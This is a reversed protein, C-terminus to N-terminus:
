QNVEEEIIEEEKVEEQVIKYAEKFETMTRDAKYNPNFKLVDSIVKNVDLLESSVAKRVELETANPNTQTFAITEAEIRKAEAFVQECHKFKHGYATFIGTIDDAIKSEIFCDYIVMAQEAQEATLKQEEKNTIEKEFLPM